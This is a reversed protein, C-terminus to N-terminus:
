SQVDRKDLLNIQNEYKEQNRFIDDYKFEIAKAHLEEAPLISPKKEPITGVAVVTTVIAVLAIVIIIKNRAIKEM